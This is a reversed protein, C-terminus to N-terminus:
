PQPRCVPKRSRSLPSARWRRAPISPRRAAAFQLALDADTEEDPSLDGTVDIEEVTRVREMTEQELHRFADATAPLASSVVFEDGKAPIAQWPRSVTIKTEDRISEVSRILNANKGSVFQILDGETITATAINGHFEMVTAPEGTVTTRFRATTSRTGLLVARLCETLAGSLQRYHPENLNLPTREFLRVSGIFDYLSPLLVTKWDVLGTFYKDLTGILHKANENVTRVVPNTDVAKPDWFFNVLEDEEDKDSSLRSTTCGPVRDDLQHEALSWSSDDAFDRRSERFARDSLVECLPRQELSSEDRDSFVLEVGGDLSNLSDWWFVRLKNQGAQFFDNVSFNELLVVENRRIRDAVEPPIWEVLDDYAPRLATSGSFEGPLKRGFFVKLPKILNIEALRTPRVFFRYSYGFKFQDLNEILMLAPDREDPRFPLRFKGDTSQHLAEPDVLGLHATSKDIRREPEAEQGRGFYGAQPLDIQQAWLEFDGARLPRDGYHALQPSEAGFSVMRFAGPLQTNDLVFGDTGGSRVLNHVGFVIALDAPFPDPEPVHLKIPAWPAARSNDLATQEEATNTATPIVRFSYHIETEGPKIQENAFQRDNLEFEDTAIYPNVILATEARRESNQERLVEIGPRYQGPLRELPGNGIRRYIEFYGLNPSEDSLLSEDFKLPLKVLVKATEGQGNEAARTVVFKQRGPLRDIKAVLSQQSGARLEVDEDPASCWKPRRKTAVWRM